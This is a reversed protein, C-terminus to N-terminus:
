RAGAKKKTDAFAWRRVIWVVVAEVAVIGGFFLGFAYCVAMFRFARDGALMLYITHM